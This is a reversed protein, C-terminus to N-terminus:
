DVVVQNRGNKKANYLASDARKFLTDATDYEKSESVGISVSIPEQVIQFKWDGITTRIREALILAHSADTEPLLLVFEEGGYRSCIDSARCLSSLLSSIEQLVSDGADHGYGDNIKKFYDVDLVLLSFVDQKRKFVDFLRHLYDMLYRRNYLKTLSDRFSMERYERSSAELAHQVLFLRRRIIERNYSIYVSISLVTIQLFVSSMSLFLGHMNWGLILLVANAMFLVFLLRKFETRYFYAFGLCGIIFASHDFYEYSDFVTIAALLFVLLSCYIYILWDLLVYKKGGKMLRIIIFLVLSFLSATIFLVFSYFTLPNLDIAYTIAFMATLVFVILSFVRFTEINEAIIEKRYRPDEAIQQLKHISISSFQREAM